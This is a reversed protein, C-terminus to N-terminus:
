AKKWRLGLVVRYGKMRRIRVVSFPFSLMVYISNSPSRLKNIIIKLLKKFFIAIM